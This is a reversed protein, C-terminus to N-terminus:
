ETGLIVGDVQFAGTNDDYYGPPEGFDLLDLLGMYFRTAGAPAHFQQVTGGPASRGDGVWFIQHLGPYLHTFSGDGSDLSAPAPDQPATDGLFVGLVVPYGDRHMLGALGGWTADTEPPGVYPEELGLLPPGAQLAISGSAATIQVVRKGGSPLVIEIPLVGGGGGGPAPAFTRGAGYINAQGSVSTSFADLTQLPAALTAQVENQDLRRNANDDAALLSAAQFRDEFGASQSGAAGLRVRVVGDPDPARDDLEVAGLIEAFDHGVLFRDSAANTVRWGRKTAWLDVSPLVSSTVEFPSGDARRGVVLFAQSRLAAPADPDDGQFAGYRLTMRCYDAADPLDFEPGGDSALLNVARKHRRLSVGEEECADSRAAHASTISVWADTVQIGAGKQLSVTKFDSSWAVLAIGPPNGTETGFCATCVFLALSVVLLSRM